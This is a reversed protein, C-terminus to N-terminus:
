TFKIFENEYETVTCGDYRPSSLYWPMLEWKSWFANKELEFFTKEVSDTFDM